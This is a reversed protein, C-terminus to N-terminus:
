LDSACCPQFSHWRYRAKRTRRWGQRWPDARSRGHCLTRRSYRAATLVRARSYCTFKPCLKLYLLAEGLHVYQGAPPAPVPFALQALAREQVQEVEADCLVHQGNYEGHGKHVGQVFGAAVGINEPHKSPAMAIQRRDFNLVSESLTRRGVKDRNRHARAM